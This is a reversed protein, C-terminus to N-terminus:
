SDLERVILDLATVPAIHDDRITLWRTPDGDQHARATGWNRGPGKIVWLFNRHEPTWGGAIIRVVTGAPPVSRPWNSSM